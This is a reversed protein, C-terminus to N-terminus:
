GLRARAAALSSNVEAQQSQAAKLATEAGQLAVEKSRLEHEKGVLYAEAGKIDSKLAALSSESFSVEAALKTKRKELGEIEGFKEGLEKLTELLANLNQIAKEVIQKSM